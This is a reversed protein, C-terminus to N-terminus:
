SFLSEIYEEEIEEFSTTIQQGHLRMPKDYSTVFSYRKEDRFWAITDIFPVYLM